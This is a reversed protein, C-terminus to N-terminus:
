RDPIHPLATGGGCLEGSEVGRIASCWGYMKFSRNVNVAMAYAANSWCYKNHDANGTDEEFAFEEVPATKAYGYSDAGSVAAHGARHVAFGGVRAAGGRPM